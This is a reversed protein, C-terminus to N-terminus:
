PPLAERVFKLFPSGTGFTPRRGFHERFQDALTIIALSSAPSKEVPKRARKKEPLCFEVAEQLRELTPMPNGVTEGTVRELHLWADKLLMSASESEGAGKIAHILRATQSGLRTLAARDAKPPKPRQGAHAAQYKHLTRLAVKMFEAKRDEPLRGLARRLYAPSSDKM